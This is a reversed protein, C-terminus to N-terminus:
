FKAYMGSPNEQKQLTKLDRISALCGFDGTKIASLSTRVFTAASYSVTLEDM